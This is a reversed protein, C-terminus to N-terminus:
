YLCNGTEAAAEELVGEVVTQGQLSFMASGLSSTVANLSHSFAYPNFTRFGASSVYWDPPEQYLGEFAKAWNDAM